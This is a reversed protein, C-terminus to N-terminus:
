CNKINSNVDDIKIDPFEIKWKNPRKEMWLKFSSIRECTQNKKQTHNPIKQPIKKIKKQASFPWLKPFYLRPFPWQNKWIIPFNISSEKYFSKLFHLWSEFWRFKLDVWWFQLFPWLSFVKEKIWWYWFWSASCVM